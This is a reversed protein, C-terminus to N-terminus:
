NIVRRISLNLRKSFEEELFAATQKMFGISSERRPVFPVRGAGGYMTMGSFDGEDFRVNLPFGEDTPSPSSQIVWMEENEPFVLISAKLAGTYEPALNMAFQHGVTAVERLTDESSKPIGQAIRRLEKSTEEIGQIDIKIM